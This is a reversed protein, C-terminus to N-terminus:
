SASGRASNAEQERLAALAAWRPDTSVAAEDDDGDPPAELDCGEPHLPRLPVALVLSQRILETLDLIHHADILTDKDADPPAALKHGTEVDITPFFQEELEIDVPLVVPELCRACPVGVMTKLNGTVLIGDTDRMLTVTGSLPAEVTMDDAALSSIDDNMEYHRAAGTHEKMLQAVNYQM